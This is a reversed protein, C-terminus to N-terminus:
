ATRREYGDTFDAKIIKRKRPWLEKKDTSTTIMRQQQRKDASAEAFASQQKRVRMKRQRQEIQTIQSIQPKVDTATGSKRDGAESRQDNGAEPVEGNNSM